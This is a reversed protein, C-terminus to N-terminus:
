VGPKAEAKPEALKGGVMYAARPIIKLSLAISFGGAASRAGPGTGSPRHFGRDRALLDASAHTRRNM